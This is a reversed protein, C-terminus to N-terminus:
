RIIEQVLPNPTVTPDGIVIADNLVQKAPEVFKPDSTHIAIAVEKAPMGLALTLELGSTLDGTPGALDRALVGLRKTDIAVVRGSTAPAWLAAAENLGLVRIPDDSVNPDGGQAAVFQRFQKLADGSTLAQMVTERAQSSEVGTLSLLESALLVSLEGLRGFTRQSLVDIAARVELANGIAPGLPQNMDSLVATVQLGHAAGIAICQTALKRNLDDNGLISAQGLKVDLVLHKAGTALKKSMISAAILATDDVLEIHDRLAYLRRDAPALEQTAAAIAVGVTALQSMFATADLDTRMGPISALKDLTGGTHGLSGGSLKAVVFGVSAVLPAVILTTSDAVGGTSHKDVVPGNVAPHKLVKGSAVMAETLAVSEDLSIGHMVRAMLWAAMQVDTFMNNTFASVVNRWEDGSLPETHRRARQLVARPVFLDSM